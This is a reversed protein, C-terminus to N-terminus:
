GAQRAQWWAIFDGVPMPRAYHYGQAHDCGLTALTRATEAEEVGEGVVELGFTHAIRIMLEVIARDAEDRNLREVFSKDLKLEQVPMRRLYDMSAYGTGFDDLSLWGGAERLSELTRASTAEDAVFGGETIEFCLREASVHWTECTQRVFVALEPDRLDESSLNVSVRIDCGAARLSAVAQVARQFPHKAQRRQDNVCGSRVGGAGSNRAKFGSLSRPQAVM